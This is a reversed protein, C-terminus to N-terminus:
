RVTSIAIIFMTDCPVWSMYGANRSRSQPKPGVPRAASVANECTPASTPPTAEVGVPQSPPAGDPERQGARHDGDGDPREGGGQRQEDRAGEDHLEENLPGPADDRRM